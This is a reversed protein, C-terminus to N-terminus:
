SPGRLSSTAHSHRSPYSDASAAGGHLALAAATSLLLRSFLFRNMRRPDAVPTGRALQAVRRRPELDREGSRCEREDGSSV